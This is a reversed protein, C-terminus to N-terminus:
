IFFTGPETRSLCLVGEEPVQSLVAIGKLGSPWISGFNLWLYLMFNVVVKTYVHEGSFMSLM